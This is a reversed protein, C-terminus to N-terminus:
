VCFAMRNTDYGFSYCFNQSDATFLSSRDSNAMKM